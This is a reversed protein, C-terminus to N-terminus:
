GARAAVILRDAPEWFLRQADPGPDLPAFHDATLDATSHVVAARINEQPFGFSLLRELLEAAGANGVAVDRDGVLIRLQMGHDLTGLDIPSEMAPNIQSPFVSLVARPAPRQLAAWEVVLRGGRSYGIGVLPVAPNGLAELGNRVGALIHAVARTGGPRTEYAPYVVANGEAALHRLWPLHNTPLIETPGGLGHVFVVVSRPPGGPTLVWARDAGKGVPGGLAAHTTGRGCGALLAVVAALVAAEVLRDAELLAM